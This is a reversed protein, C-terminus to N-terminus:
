FFNWTRRERASLKQEGGGIPVSPRAWGGNDPLTCNAFRNQTGNIFPQQRVANGANDTIPKALDAITDLIAAETQAIAAAWNVQYSSGAMGNAPHFIKAAAVASGTANSV